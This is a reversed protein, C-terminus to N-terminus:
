AVWSFTGQYDVFNLVKDDRLKQMTRRISATVTNNEPYLKQLEASCDKVIESLYFFERKSYKQVLLENLASKWTTQTKM